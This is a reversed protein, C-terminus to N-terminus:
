KSVSRKNGFVVTALSIKGYLHSVIYILINAKLLVVSLGQPYFINLFDINQVLRKLQFDHSFPQLIKILVQNFTM